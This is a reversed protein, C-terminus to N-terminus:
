LRKGALLDGLVTPAAKGRAARGSGSIPVSRPNASMAEMFASFYRREVFAAKALGGRADDPVAGRGGEAKRQRRATELERLAFSVYEHEHGVLEGFSAHETVIEAALARNVGYAVLSAYAAYQTDTLRSAVNLAFREPVGAKRVRAYSARKLPSLVSSDAFLNGQNPMDTLQSLELEPAMRLLEASRVFVRFEIAIITRGAKRKEYQFWYPASPNDRLEREAPKLIRRDFDKVYAYKKHAGFFLRLEDLPTVFSLETAGERKRHHLQFLDLIRAAYASRYPRLDFLLHTYPLKDKYTFYKAIDPSLTATILGREVGLSSLWNVKRFDRGRPKKLLIPNLNLHTFIDNIASYIDTWRERGDANVFGLFEKVGIRIVQDLPGDIDFKRALVYILQRARLTITQGGLVLENQQIIQNGGDRNGLHLSTSM